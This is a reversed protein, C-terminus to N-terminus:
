APSSINQGPSEIIQYCVIYISFVINNILYSYYFICIAYYSMSLCVEIKWVAMHERAIRLKRAKRCRYIHFLRKIKNMQEIKRLDLLNCLKKRCLYGRAFTAIVTAAFHRGQIFQYERVLRQMPKVNTGLRLRPRSLKCLLVWGRYARKRKVLIPKVKVNSIFRRVLVQIRRAKRFIMNDYDDVRFKKLRVIFGRWRKQIIMSSWNREDYDNRFVICCMLIYPSMMKNFQIAKINRAIKSAAKNIRIIEQRQREKEKELKDDERQKKIFYRAKIQLSVMGRRFCLFDLRPIIMRCFAQAALIHRHFKRASSIITYKYALFGIERYFYYLRHFKWYSRKRVHFGRFVRQIILRADRERRLRRAKCIALHIAFLRRMLIQLRTAWRNRQLKMKEGADRKINIKLFKFTRRLDRFRKAKERRKERLQTSANVYRCFRQLIATADSNLRTEIVFKNFMIVPLPYMELKCRPGYPKAFPQKRKAINTYEQPTINCSEATLAVLNECNNIFAEIAKVGVLDLNIMDVHSLKRCRQAIEVLSRDTAQDCSRIGLHELEPLLAITSLGTDTIMSCGNIELRKLKPCGHCLASLGINSIKICGTAILENLQQCNSGLAILSKDSIAHCFSFDICIINPCKSAMAAIGVDTVLAAGSIKLVKLNTYNSHVLAKDSLHPMMSNRSNSTTKNECCMEFHLLKDATSWLTAISESTVRSIGSIKVKTLETTNTSLAMVAAAGCLICGSIDISHLEGQFKEIFGKIGEDSIKTCRAINVDRLMRCRRGIYTLTADTLEECRSLDLHVIARGGEGIWEFTSEGVVMNRMNLTKLSPMLTRVGAMCLTTLNRCNSVDIHSLINYGATMLDLLGEDGFDPSGALEVHELKRFRQICQSLAHLGLDDLGTTKNAVLTKLNGCTQSITTYVYLSTRCESINLYLLFKFSGLVHAAKTELEGVSVLSLRRLNAHGRIAELCSLEWGVCKDVVLTKVTPCESGLIEFINANVAWGKLDVVELPFRCDYDRFLVKKPIDLKNEDFRFTLSWPDITKVTRKSEPVTKALTNLSKSSKLSKTKTKDMTLCNEEVVRSQYSLSSHASPRSM